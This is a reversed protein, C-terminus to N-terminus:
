FRRAETIRARCKDRRARHTRGRRWRTGEISRSGLQTAITHSARCVRGRAGGARRPARRPLAAGEAV